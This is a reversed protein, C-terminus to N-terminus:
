RARGAARRARADAHVIGHERLPRADRGSRVALVEALIAVAIEEPSESGIDLGIPTRIRALDADDVGAERLAECRLRHTALSGM